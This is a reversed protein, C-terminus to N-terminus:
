CGRASVLLFLVLLVGAALLLFPLVIFMGAGLKVGDWVGSRAQVTGPSSPRTRRPLPGPSLHYKVRLGDLVAAPVGYHRAAEAIGSRRLQESVEHHSPNGPLEPITDETKPGGSAAGKADLDSGCYRCKVAAAKITEACYPCAKTDGQEDNEGM